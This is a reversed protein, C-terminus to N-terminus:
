GVSQVQKTAYWMQGYYDWSHFPDLFRRLRILMGSRDAQYMRHGRKTEPLPKKIKTSSIFQIESCYEIRLQSEGQKEKNALEKAFM